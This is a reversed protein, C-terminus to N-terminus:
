SAAAAPSVVARALDAVEAGIAEWTYRAEFLEAASDSLLQRLEPEAMLRLCADAFRRPDDAILSDLGDTLDIGECGVTTTVLPLHNAMAEVVKLRTGAGVRIPVVSVDASRLEGSVDEVEGVLEVGPLGRVWAVRESGRGVIRLVADPRHALIVPMVERVMWEVAETNPEYGLLGVFLLVPRSGALRLRDKRPREPTDAGNPVVSCNSLGSRRRDLESCVVVRDVSAACERQLSGWRKEDVLDMARSAAWRATVRLREVPGAGPTPRAPVRRRLRLAVDELNDFDCITACGDFLDHVAQWTDVHSFWVLDPRPDWYALRQRADAWDLSLLRRPLRGLGWEALWDAPGRSSHSPSAVVRGVGDLGCEGPEPQSSRHLAVVDVDGVQALSGVIHDLRQRYGDVAPWPYLEAVM